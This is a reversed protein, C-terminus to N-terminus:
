GSDAEHATRDTLDHRDQGKHERRQDRGIAQFQGARKHALHDIRVPKRGGQGHDEGEDPGIDANAHGPRQQGLLQMFDLREAKQIPGSAHGKAQDAGQKKQAHEIQHEIDCRRGLPHRFPDGM